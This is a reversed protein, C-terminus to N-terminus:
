DLWPLHSGEEDPNQGRVRSAWQGEREERMREEERMTWGHAKSRMGAEEGAQNLWSLLLQIGARLTVSVKNAQNSRQTDYLPAFLLADSM